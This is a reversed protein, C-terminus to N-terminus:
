RAASPPAGGGAELSCGPHRCNCSIEMTGAADKCYQSCYKSDKGPPCNCSPHACKETMGQAICM